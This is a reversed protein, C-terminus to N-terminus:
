QKVVRKVVRNGGAAIAEVFYVGAPLEGISLSTVNDNINTQRSVCAGGASYVAVMSLLSGSRVNVVDRVVTPTIIIGDADAGADTIGSLNLNLVRPEDLDGYIIDSVWPLEEQFWVQEGDYITAFRVKAGSEEANGSVTLLYLGSETATTVGRCEDGVFAAICLDTLEVDGNMARAVVNMNDSFRHHDVPTFPLTEGAEAIMLPSQYAVAEGSPYRFTKVADANSMYYYGMGPMVSTLKGEWKYGDYIAVQNQNKVMDGRVPNLDAFAESVSLNFISLPGIWNWGPYITQPRENPNVREGTITVTAPAKMKVKYMKGVGLEDLGSAVWSTGNNMAFGEKGKITNFVRNHGLVSELDAHGAAPEAFLSIWNWGEALDCSQHILTGANWKVPTDYEGILANPQYTITLPSGDLTTVVDSLVVGQSADYIRFTVPEASVVNENGYITLNVFYTDRTDLLEPSAVGCCKDGVFAAIRSYRDTCIKDKVYIQGIVNMSSEFELPNVAWEPENGFVVLHVVIPACYIGDSNSLYIQVTHQGLPASDRVTFTITESANIELSGSVSSATIWSPLGSITYTDSSNAFSYITGRFTTTENRDKFLEIEREAWMLTSYDAKASWTVTESLNDSMDRVNKVSFTMLNGHMLSPLTKLNIYIENNSATFDFDLNQRLPARKLAPSSDAATVGVSVVSGVNGRNGRPAADATSFETIINGNDDLREREMPLYVILGSVKATDEENYRNEALTAGDISANWVRLEDIDGTFYGTKNILQEHESDRKRISGVYMKDGAPTPVSQEALSRVASGDVYAVASMGRRVNLAFHHWQGDSYKTESLVYPTGDSSLSSREAKDYTSLTLSGTADFGISLHDTVSLLTAGANKAPEGKFWFEIAYSEAESPSVTSIDVEIDHSGDMHAAISKNELNWREADLTINRSRAYDTVTTGHGEDMRWYGALGPLYAAVVDDKQALATNVDRSEGWLVLDHMAGHLGNGVTLHGTGNYAPVTARDILKTTIGEDALLLSFKNGADTDANYDLAVFVWRGAPIASTGTVSEDGISVVPYGSEDIDLKIKNGGTGHELLTGGSSRKLWVSASFGSNAIPLYADTSLANGNLQLSVENNVKQGNLFGTIFFNTEKTLYSSRIDENFRVHIDSNPLLLGSNPYAHGLLRPGHTDRVVEQGATTNVYEKTGFLCMSEAAVVYTGDFGPLKLTYVIDPQDSPLLSQTETEHGDTYYEADTLWEHATNWQADGAYRYKLRVGKLGRFMRNIDSITVKVEDGSKVASENLVTKDLKLTVAPAAPVFHASFSVEGYSHRPACTAWLVLKIDNYDLISQNSQKITLTKTMPSGYELWIEAGNVLPEGDVYIQLGNPNSDPDVMLLVSTAAEHIESENALVLQVQAEQGAPIDVFTRVPMSIKPNDSRMTAYDLTQGPRYYKTKTEGEYPCRTQGGRTRFIPGWNRPSKYIDVTHANARQTDNLTYSFRKSTTTEDVDYTTRQSEIMTNTVLLAGMKDLLYGNKGKYAFGTTFVQVSNDVEKTTSGTSKTVTVGTEFSENGEKYNKADGFAKLKDEENDALTSKWASIIENCWRVSDCGEYGKPFRAYYSPGDFGKKAEGGWVEDDNCTGFRKDDAPLFTYYTAIAPEEEIESMSTIHRIKSNRTRVINNFLTTEIYKQSYEFHTNFKEDMSITERIGVEWQGQENKFLGVKDAAGIIYNTSYGVFVDGDRGVYMPSTSTSTAQGNVYSVSTHEDWSKNVDYKWVVNNERVVQNYTFKYFSPGGTMVDVELSTSINAGLESNNHIARVTYSYDTTVTDTAWTAYSADGPPDRLVMQVHDPGATIFNNGTTVVGAIIGAMGLDSRWMQTRKNIVMSANMNRTYPASLSPVGARWKYVGEGISDLQIQESDLRLLDGRKVSHGEATTDMAAIVVAQGLENDFTVVSDRLLDKYVVGKPDKDYNAYPEYCKVNFEYARGMQFIPYGYNYTVKRTQEDYDYIALKIDQGADRVTITDTGFAGAPAGKQTIDMVPQARYNLLLKKNCKFLPLPKKDPTYLTDPVITDNPNRLDIAPVSSFMDDKEVEANNPFKVSEVKYRIPPLLASFEGTAVDTTIFVYKADDISGGARYAESKITDSASKVAVNESNPLWESTTGDIRQVANLMRQPHDLPSLKIVAKGINNESVGYGLPKKGETEGGTIRGAVTALTNDYFDLHTDELFNYTDGEIVPYRGNGEFTHGTRRAEIYHRGIPVSIEYEGNEDTVILKDNKNCPTGDVYFSVSDVPVTTGSYRVTGRVTFSSVDTFDVGNIALATGGIFASRSTPTFSHVGKSPYVSYRTGSGTFPIGRIEYEGKTNTIGYASLQESTPIVISPRTNPGVTVHNSNPVGNTLSTDFAYEELGADFTIYAKLGDSENSIMRDADATIENTTLVRNWVRVEDVNGTFDPLLVWDNGDFFQDAGSFEMKMNKFRPGYYGSWSKSDRAEITYTLLTAWEPITFEVSYTQWESHETKDDCVTVQDVHGGGTMTVTVLAAKAGMPASMEVSAKVNYGVMQSSVSVEKSATITQHSSAFAGDIIKWGYNSDRGIDSLEWGDLSAGSEDMLPTKFFAEIYNPTASVNEENAVMQNGATYTTVKNGDCLLSVQSFQGAPIGGAVTGELLLDYLAKSKNYRLDLQVPESMLTMTEAVSDPRVFMQLTFPKHDNVVGGLNTFRLADGKELVARSHYAQIGRPDSESTLSVRVSDVAMGSEFQVRGSVVGTASCFGVDRKSNAIVMGGGDCDTVYASVRYEYYRGPEATKDTYTYKAATGEQKRITVWDDSGIYRRQVDYTTPETGVQHAEWKIEVNAGATGKTVDLSTVTSKDLVHAYITDSYLHVKNDALDLQLFYGYVMCANESKDDIFSAKGQNRSATETKYNRTVSGDPEIRHVKFEVDNESKPVNGFTWDVKVKDTVGADQVLHLPIVPMTSVISQAGTISPSSAPDSPITISGWSDRKMFVEYRYRKGYELGRTTNDTYSKSKTSVLLERDGQYSGDDNLLTRYVQYEGIGSSYNDDWRLTTTGDVQNFSATFQNIRNGFSFSQTVNENLSQSVDGGVEFTFHTRTNRTINVKFDRDTPVNLGISGSNKNVVQLNGTSYTNGTNTEIVKVSYDSTFKFDSVNNGIKEPLWSNSASVTIKGPETWSLSAERARYMDSFSIDKVYTAHLNYRYTTWTQYSMFLGDTETQIAAVERVGRENPAYRMYFWAGDWSCNVLGWTKDTQSWSATATGIEHVTGDKLKVYVKETGGRYSIRPGQYENYRFKLFIWPNETTVKGNNSCEFGRHNNLKADESPWLTGGLYYIIWSVSRNGTTSHAYIDCWYTGGGPDDYTGSLASAPLTAVLSLLLFIYYRFKM